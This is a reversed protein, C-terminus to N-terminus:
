IKMNKIEFIFTLYKVATNTVAYVSAMRCLTFPNSYAHLCSRVNDCVKCTDLSVCFRHM